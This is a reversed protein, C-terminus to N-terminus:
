IVYTIFHFSCAYTVSCIRICNYVFFDTIIKFNRSLLKCTSKYLFIGLRVFTKRPKKNLLYVLYGNFYQHVKCNPIIEGSSIFKALTKPAISLGKPEFSNGVSSVKTTRQQPFSGNNATLHGM